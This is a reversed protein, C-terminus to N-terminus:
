NNKKIIYAEDSESNSDFETDDYGSDSSSDDVYNRYRDYESQVQNHELNQDFIKKIIKNTNSNDRGYLDVLYTCAGYKYYLDQNLGVIYCCEDISLDEKFHMQNVKWYKKETAKIERLNMEM